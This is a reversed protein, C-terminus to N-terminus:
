KTIKRRGLNILWLVISLTGIAFLPLSTMALWDWRVQDLPTPGLGDPDVTLLAIVLLLAFMVTAIGGVLPIVIVVCAVTRHM